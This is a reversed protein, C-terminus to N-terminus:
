QHRWLLFYALVALVVAYEAWALVVWALDSM